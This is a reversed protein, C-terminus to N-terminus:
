CMAAGSRVETQCPSLGRLCSPHGNPRFGTYVFGLNSSLSASLYIFYYQQRYMELDINLKPAPGSPTIGRTTQPPNQPWCLTPAPVVGGRARASPLTMPASSLDLKLSSFSFSWMM